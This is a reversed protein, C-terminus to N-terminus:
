PVLSWDMHELGQEMMVLKAKAEAYHMITARPHRFRVFLVLRTRNGRHEVAHDVGDNFILARGRRWSREGEPTLLKAGALGSLGIHINLRLNSGGNHTNVKSGPALAFFGVEEESELLKAAVKSVANEWHRQLPFVQRLVACTERFHECLTPNWGSTTSFLVVLRWDDHETFLTPWPPLAMSDYHRLGERAFTRWRRELAHLLAGVQAAYPSGPAQLQRADTEYIGPAAFRPTESISQWGLAWRLAPTSQVHALFSVQVEESPLQKLSTMLLWFTSQFCHAGDVGDNIMKDWCLHVFNLVEGAARRQTFERSAQHLASLIAEAAARKKTDTHQLPQLALRRAHVRADGQLVLYSFGLESARVGHRAAVAALERVQGRLAPDHSVAQPADDLVESLAKLAVSYLKLEGQHAMLVAEEVHGRNVDLMRRPLSGTGTDGGRQLWSRPLVDGISLPVYQELRHGSRWAEDLPGHCETAGTVWCGEQEHFSFIHCFTSQCCLALCEDYTVHRVPVNHMGLCQIPSFRWSCTRAPEEAMRRAWWTQVWAELQVLPLAALTLASRPRMHEYTLLELPDFWCQDAGSLSHLRLLSSYHVSVARLMQDVAPLIDRRHRAVQEHLWPLDRDDAVPSVALLCRHLRLRRQEPWVRMSQHDLRVEKAVLHWDLIAEHRDLGLPLPKGLAGPGHLARDALSAALGRSLCGLVDAAPAQHDDRRSLTFHWHGLPDFARLRERLAPVNVYTYPAVGVFWDCPLSGARGVVRLWLDQGWEGAHLGHAPTANVGTASPAVKLLHTDLAPDGTTPAGSASVVHLITSGAGGFGLSQGVSTVALQPLGDTSAAAGGGYAWMELSTRAFRVSTEVAGDLLFFVCLTTNLPRAGHAADFMAVVSQKAATFVANARPPRAQEAGEPVVLARAINM